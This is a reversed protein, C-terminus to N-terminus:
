HTANVKRTLTAVFNPEWSHGGDDSYSQVFHYSDRSIESYIQRVFIARGKFSEQDYFVGRGNKFEGIMPQGVIVNNVNSWYLYWQGSKDDYLRLTLGEFRGTSSSASIEEMNARGNWIPRVVVTGNYKIWTKSGSLPKDLLLIHTHWTGIAFDFDRQGNRTTPTSSQSAAKSEVSKHSPLAWAPQWVALVSCSIMLAALSAGTNM